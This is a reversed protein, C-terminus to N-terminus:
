GQWYLDGLYNNFNQSLNSDCINAIPEAVTLINENFISDSFSKKKEMRTKWRWYWGSISIIADFSKVAAFFTVELPASRIIM